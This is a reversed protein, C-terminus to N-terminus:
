AENVEKALKDINEHLYFEGPTSGMLKLLSKMLFNEKEPLFSGGFNEQAISHEILQSPFTNDFYGRIGKESKDLCCVYLAVKKELLESLNIESFKKMNGMIKGAIVAGGLIITDFSSIDPNSKIDALETTGELKEALIKSLEFSSGKRTAYIILNKM